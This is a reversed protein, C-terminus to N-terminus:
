PPLLPSLHQCPCLPQHRLQSLLPLPRLPLHLLCQQCLYHNKQLHLRLRLRLHLHLHLHLRLYFYLHLHLHLYLYLHLYLHQCLLLLLSFKRRVQMLSLLPSM